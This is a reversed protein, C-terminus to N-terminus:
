LTASTEKVVIQTLLKMDFPKAFVRRRAATNWAKTESTSTIVLYPVRVESLAGLLEKAAGDQLRYDIIAYDPASKQLHAAAQECSPFPGAIDFGLDSFQQELDLAVIADDEAILIERRKSYQM